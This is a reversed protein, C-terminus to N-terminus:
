KLSNPPRLFLGLKSMKIPKHELNSSQDVLLYKQVSKEDEVKEKYGIPELFDVSLDTDVIYIAEFAPEIHAVTFRMPEYEDFSCLIEDGCSLVQYNTLCKELEDRPNKIELFDVSHPLLKIFTGMPVTRHKLIVHEATDLNLQQHIWLPIRIMTEHGTFKLVGCYTKYIGNIHSIQFIYPPQVQFAVLDELISQPLIVRGTYNNEDNTDYKEPILTWSPSEDHRGFFNFFM